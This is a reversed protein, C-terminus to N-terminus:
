LREGRGAKIYIDEMRESHTSNRKRGAFAEHYGHAEAADIADRVKEWYKEEPELLRGVRDSIRARDDRNYMIDHAWEAAHALACIHDHFEPDVKRASRLCTELRREDSVWYRLRSEGALKIVWLGIGDLDFYLPDEPPHSDGLEPHEKIVMKKSAAFYPRTRLLASLAFAKYIWPIRTTSAYNCAYKRRLRM